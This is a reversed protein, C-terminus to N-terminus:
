IFHERISQICAHLKDKHHHVSFATFAAVDLVDLSCCDCCSGCSTAGDRKEKRQKHPGVRKKCCGCSLTSVNM